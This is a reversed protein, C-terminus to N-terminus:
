QSPPLPIHENLPKIKIHMKERNNDNDYSNSIRLIMILTMMIMKDNKNDDSFMLTGPPRAKHTTTNGNRTMSTIVM